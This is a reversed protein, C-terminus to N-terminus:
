APQDSKRRLDFHTAIRMACTAPDALSTDIELDYRAGAHVRPFQWRALGPQRDGRSREREELVALPARVGVKFFVFGALLEDYEILGHDLIVDDVILNNGARAMAAIAQRMGSLFRRGIPGTEIEIQEVGEADVETRWFFAEPDDHFREPLMDLFTDLSVHLWPDHLITQLSEAISSKGASSTGNLLIVTATM